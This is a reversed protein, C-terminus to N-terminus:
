KAERIALFAKALQHILAEEKAEDYAYGAQRMHLHLLEHIITDEIASDSLNEPKWDRPDILSLTATKSQPDAEISGYTQPGEYGKAVKFDVDWDALRLLYQWYGVIAGASDAFLKGGSITKRTM